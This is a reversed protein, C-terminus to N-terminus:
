KIGIYKYLTLKLINLCNKSYSSLNKIYYFNFIKFIIMRDELRKIYKNNNSSKIITLYIRNIIIIFLERWINEKESKININKDELVFNIMDDLHGNNDAEDCEEVRILENTVFGEREDSFIEILLKIEETKILTNRKGQFFLCKLIIILPNKLKKLYTDCYWSLGWNTWFNSPYKSLFSPLEDDEYYVSPNLTRKL